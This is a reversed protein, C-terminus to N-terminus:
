LRNALKTIVDDDQELEDPSDSLVVEEDSEIQIRSRAIYPEPKKPVSAPKDFLVKGRKPSKNVVNQKKVVNYKEEEHDDEEDYSEFQDVNNISEKM